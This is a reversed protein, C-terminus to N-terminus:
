VSETPHASHPRLMEICDQISQAKKREKYLGTRKYFEDYNIGKIKRTAISETGMEDDRIHKTDFISIHRLINYVKQYGFQKLPSFIDTRYEKGFAVLTVTLKNIQKDKLYNADIFIEQNPTFIIEKLKEQYNHLTVKLDTDDINRLYYGSIPKEFIFKRPIISRMRKSKTYLVSIDCLAYDEIGHVNYIDKDLNYNVDFSLKHNKVTNVAGFFVKLGIVRLSRLYYHSVFIEENPKLHNNKVIINDEQDKLEVEVQVGDINRFFCGPYMLSVHGKICIM